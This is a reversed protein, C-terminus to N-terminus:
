EKPLFPTLAEVLKAISDKPLRALNWRFLEMDVDPVVRFEAPAFVRFAVDVCNDYDSSQADFELAETNGGVLLVAYGVDIM